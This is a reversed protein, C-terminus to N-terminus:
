LINLLILDIHLQNLLHHTHIQRKQPSLKDKTSKANKIQEKEQLYTLELKVVLNRGFAHQMFLKIWHVISNSAEKIM